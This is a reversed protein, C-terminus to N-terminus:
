CPPLPFFGPKEKGEQEQAQVQPTAAAVTLLGRQGSGWMPHAARVRGRQQSPAEGREGQRTPAPHQSCAGKHLGLVSGIPKPLRPLPSVILAGRPFDGCLRVASKCQSFNVDGASFEIKTPSLWIHGTYCLSIKVPHKKKKKKIKIQEERSNWKADEDTGSPQM